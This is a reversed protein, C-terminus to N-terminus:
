VTCVQGQALEEKRANKKGEKRQEQQEEQLDCREMMANRFISSIDRHWTGVNIM